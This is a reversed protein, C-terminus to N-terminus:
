SFERPFERVIELDSVLGGPLGGPLEGLLGDVLWMSAHVSCTAAVQGTARWSGARGHARAGSGIGALRGVYVCIM